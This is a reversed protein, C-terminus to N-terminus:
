ARHQGCLGPLRFRRIRPGRATPMEIHSNYERLISLVRASRTACRLASRSSCRTQPLDPVLARQGHPAVYLPPRRDGQQQARGGSARRGSDQATLPEELSTKLTRVPTTAACPAPRCRGCGRWARRSFGPPSRRRPAGAPRRVRAGPGEHGAAYGDPSVIASYALV